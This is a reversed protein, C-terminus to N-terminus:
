VFHKSAVGAGAEVAKLATGVGGFIPALTPVFMSGASLAPTAVSNIQKLTNYSKRAIHYKDKM